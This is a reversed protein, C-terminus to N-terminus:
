GPRTTEVSGPSRHRLRCERWLFAEHLLHNADQLHLKKKINERHSEITKFSLDLREAIERTGLGQGILEFVQLERNSLREISLSGSPSSDGVMGALLGSALTESLYVGGALVRRIAVLVQEVPEDKLVYGKAGARLVREAYLTENQMSLVLVILSPYRARLDAVLDIGSSDRLSIEVVALDPKLEEIAELADKASEAEGCVTMDPIREILLSLGKRTIPHSDVLLIRTEAKATNRKTKGAMVEGQM